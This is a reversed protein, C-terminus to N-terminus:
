GTSRMPSQAFTGSGHRCGHDLSNEQAAAEVESRAHPDNAFWDKALVDAKTSAVVSNLPDDDGAKRLLPERIDALGHRTSTVLLHDKLRRLRKAEWVRALYDDLL